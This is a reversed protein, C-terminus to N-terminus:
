TTTQQVPSPETITVAPYSFTLNVSIGTTTNTSTWQRLLYANTDFYVYATGGPITSDIVKYKYCTLSGCAATGEKTVSVGAATAQNFNFTFGLTPDAATFSSGGTTYEYWTGGASEQVYTIGDLIVASIQESGSMYTIDKDGKGDSKVTFSTSTGAANTATGVAVYQMTSLATHEAFACLKSDSFDKLCAANVTM